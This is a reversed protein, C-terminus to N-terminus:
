TPPAPRLIRALSASTIATMTDQPARAPPTAMTSLLRKMLALALRAVISVVTSM